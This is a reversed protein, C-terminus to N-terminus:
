GQGSKERQFCQYLPDRAYDHCERGTTSQRFKAGNVVFNPELSIYRLSGYEACRNQHSTQCASLFHSNVHLARNARTHQPHHSVEILFDLNELLFRAETLIPLVYFTNCTYELCYILGGNLGLGIAEM